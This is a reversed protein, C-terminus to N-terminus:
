IEWAAQLGELVAEEATRPALCDGIRTFSYGDAELEDGLDDNATHGLSLVLTDVEEVVIPEDTLTDQFYASDVDAGFLRRHTTIEVGLRHLRGVYHNRVYLQLM